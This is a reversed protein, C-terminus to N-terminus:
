KKLPKGELFHQLNELFIKDTRLGSGTELASIHTTLIISRHPRIRSENPLAEMRVVDFYAQALAGNKLAEFSAWEDLLGGREVDIALSGRETKAFIGYRANGRLSALTNFEM